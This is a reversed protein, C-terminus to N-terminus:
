SSASRGLVRTKLWRVTEKVQGITREPGHLVLKKYGVFGTLAAGGAMLLVTLLAAAWLPLVLAIIAVVLVVIAVLALWALVLAAAFWVLARLNAAVLEGIEQRPLEIQKRIYTRAQERIRGLIGRYTQDSQV